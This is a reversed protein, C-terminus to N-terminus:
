VPGTTLWLIGSLKIFIWWSRLYIFPFPIEIVFGIHSLVWKLYKSRYWLDQESMSTTFDVQCAAKHSKTHCWGQHFQTAHSRLCCSSCLRPPRCASCSKQAAWWFFCPLGTGGPIVESSLGYVAQWTSKVVLILSCSRQYLDLYRLHTNKVNARNYFSEKWHTM